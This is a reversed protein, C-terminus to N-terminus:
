KILEMHRRIKLAETEKGHSSLYGSLREMWVLLAAKWGNYSATEMAARIIAENDIRDRVAIGAAVMQSVPDDKMSLIAKEAEDSNGTKLANLFGAYQPPLLDANVADPKGALFLYYNENAPVPKLEAIKGFDGPEAKKLMAVHLAMRTLWAKQMVDLNGSKKIEDIANQFHLEANDPSDKTLFYNKYIDLQGNGYILWMPRKKSGCGSVAFVLILFLIIKRM